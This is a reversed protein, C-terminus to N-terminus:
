DASYFWSGHFHRLAESSRREEPKSVLPSLLFDCFVFVVLLIALVKGDGSLKM